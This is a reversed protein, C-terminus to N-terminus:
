GTREGYGTQVLTASALMQKNVATVTSMPLGPSSPAHGTTYTLLTAATRGMVGHQVHQLFPVLSANALQQHSGSQCITSMPWDTARGILGTNAQLLWNAKDGPVIFPQEAEIVYRRLGEAIRKLTNEGL